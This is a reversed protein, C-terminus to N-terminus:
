PARSSSATLYKEVSSAFLRFDDLREDLLRHLIEPDIALYGHVLVNRFEAIGRFVSGGTHRQLAQLATDLALWFASSPKL